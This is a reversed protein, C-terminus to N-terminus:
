DRLAGQRTMEQAFCVWADHKTGTDYAVIDIQTDDAFLVDGDFSIVLEAYKATRPIIVYPAYTPEEDEDLYCVSVREHEAQVCEWDPYQEEALALISQIREDRQAIYHCRVLEVLDRYSPTNKYESRLSRLLQTRYDKLANLEAAIRLIEYSM